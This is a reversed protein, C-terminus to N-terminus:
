LDGIRQKFRKVVWKVCYMEDNESIEEMLVTEVGRCFRRPVVTTYLGSEREEALSPCDVFCVGSHYRM